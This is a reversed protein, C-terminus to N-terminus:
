DSQNESKGRTKPGPRRDRALYDNVAPATTFWNNGMKKAWITGKRALLRLHSYSLGSLEAAEKLTILEDLGPQHSSETSDPM